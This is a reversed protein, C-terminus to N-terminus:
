GVTEATPQVQLEQDDLQGDSSIHRVLNNIWKKSRYRRIGLLFKFVEELGVLFYVWYIPLGIVLGGVYALPIAVMWVGFTDLFLSYKTDGGSRMVGVINILNFIKAPMLLGFIMVIRQADLRVANTVNFFNMFLGSTLITVGGMGIAFLVGLTLLRKAYIYAKDEEGAGIRNGIMIASANSIGFFLVMAINQVTGSINVAAVAQTGIRGYIVSYISVGLAWISENLIVPITTRFFRKVFDKTLDIMEKLGAAPVHKGAYVCVVMLVVEIVRAILTALAAGEVGMKPFGFKGFILLYNFVANSLLAAVSLILPLRAQETSRLVASYTFSVATIIYSLGVIRLYGIGAEIVAPDNSYISMVQRPFFFALITFFSAVAIASSLGIGLVRRINRVDRKGWFQATFIASGSNIGFLMLNFLFFLQNAQGVAAIETEGLQGIMITDLMNVTSGILNQAAIPIALFLLTKYFKKDEFLYNLM